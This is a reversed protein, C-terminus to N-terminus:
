FIKEPQKSKNQIVPIAPIIVPANRQKMLNRIKDNLEKDFVPAPETNEQDLITSSMKVPLEGSIEGSNSSIEPLSETLNRTDSYTDTIEASVVTEKSNSSIESNDNTEKSNSSIEFNDNTEKSNSSIESNGVAGTTDPESETRIIKIRRRRSM